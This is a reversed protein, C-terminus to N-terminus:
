ARRPASIRQCITEPQGARRQGAARQAAQQGQEPYRDAYGGHRQERGDALAHAAIHQLVERLETSPDDGHARALGLGAAEAAQEAAYPWQGDTVGIGQPAQRMDLCSHRDNLTAPIDLEALQAPAAVNETTAMLQCLGPAHLQAQALEQGRGTVTTRRGIHHEAM